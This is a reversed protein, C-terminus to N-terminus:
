KAYKKFISRLAKIAKHLHRKKTRRGFSFRIAGWGKGYLLEVIPSENGEENKCASKSSVAIGRADLEIVLLESDFNPVGVHTIHPTRPQSEATIRLQPFATKLKTEFYTQLAAVRATEKEQIRKAYDLAHAFQRILVVPETGPRMGGEQGGGRMIPVLTLARKKYLIGVGKDCYLKTAGLTMLDVGLTPVRLSFHLPAQTADTHFIFEIDPHLKRLKRIRKAIEAIPQVTGIENGAYMVTVLAAKIGEPRVLGNVAVVGDETFLPVHTVGRGVFPAITEAVAAHELESSFVAIEHLAIGSALWRNITGAIALNDSETAGSTFIIEDSHADLVAAVQARADTMARRLQVGERHLAGPNAGVVSRPLRPLSRLMRRDVPTSSAYDLYIRPSLLERIKKAGPIRSFHKFFPM